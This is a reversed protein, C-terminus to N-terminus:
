WLSSIDDSFTCSPLGADYAAHLAACANGTLLGLCIVDALVTIGAHRRTERPRSRPFPPSRANAPQFPLACDCKTCQVGAVLNEPTLSLMPRSLAYRSASFFISSARCAPAVLSSRLAMFRVSNGSDSPWSVCNCVSSRAPLWSVASGCDSPWSVRNRISFRPPNPRVETGLKNFCSLSSSSNCRQSFLRASSGDHSPSNRRNRFSCADSFSSASTGAERPCSLSSRSSKKYSFV